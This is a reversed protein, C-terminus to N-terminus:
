EPTDSVSSVCSKSGALWVVVAPSTLALVSSQKIVRPKSTDRKCIRVIIKNNISGSDKRYQVTVVDRGEERHKNEEEFM